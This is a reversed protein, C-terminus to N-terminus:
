VYFSGGAGPQSCPTPPEFGGAGVLWMWQGLYKGKCKRLWSSTYASRHDISRGAGQEPSMYALKGKIIGVKTESSRTAAKAIGFDVIKVEGEYTVIINQPRIDRHIVNLRNGQFDKLKHAYDLGAWIRIVIYFAFELPVPVTRHRGKNAMTRLDKGHLYDMAICYTVEISGLEYIQVINQHTLLAALKAENVFMEMLSSDQTLHPLLKKIAVPKEFGKLSVIRGQSLEAM